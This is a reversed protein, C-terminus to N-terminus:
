RHPELELVQYLTPNSSKVLDALCYQRLSQIFQDAAENLIQRLSCAPSIRCPPDSCEVVKLNNELLLVIDALNIEEPKQNLRFGGGKGRKTFLINAKGLQHVIKNVHNRSINYTNSIEDISALREPPLLALYTLLRFGYDTYRTLQM